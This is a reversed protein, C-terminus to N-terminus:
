GVELFSLNGKVYYGSLINKILFPNIRKLERKTKYAFLQISRHLKTEYHSLDLKGVGGYVFLDIDSKKHWDSRSFSGFIIITKAKEISSLKDLFESEYFQTLAYLKKRNRFAPNEHNAIYYPFKKRPKVKKILNDNVLKILWNNVNDKHLDVREVIEKFKFHKIPEQFFLELIADERKNIKM